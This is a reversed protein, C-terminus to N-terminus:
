GRLFATAEDVDTFVRADPRAASLFRRLQLRGAASQVVVAVRRFREYLRAHYRAVIEEFAEDNRPPALRLDVLVSYASREVRDLARVLADYEATVQEATTFREATRSRTLIRVIPQETVLFHSTHLLERVTRVTGRPAM